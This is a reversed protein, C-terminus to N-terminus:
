AHGRQGDLIGQYDEACIATVELDCVAWEATLQRFQAYEPKRACCASNHKVLPQHIEHVSM